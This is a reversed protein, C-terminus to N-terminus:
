LIFLLVELQGKANQAQLPKGYAVGPLHFATPGLTPGTDQADRPLLYGATAAQGTLPKQTSCMVLNVHGTSVPLLEQSDRLTHVLLTPIFTSRSLM